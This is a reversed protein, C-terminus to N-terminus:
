VLSEAVLMANKNKIKEKRPEMLHKLLVSFSDLRTFLFEQIVM